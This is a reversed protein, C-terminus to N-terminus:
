LILTHGHKMPELTDSDSFSQNSTEALLAFLSTLFLAGYKM